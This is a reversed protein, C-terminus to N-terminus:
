VIYLATRLLQINNNNHIHVQAYLTQNTAFPFFNLGIIILTWFLSRMMTKKKQFFSFRLIHWTLTPLRVFSCFLFSNKHIFLLNNASFHLLLILHLAQNSTSGLSSDFSWIAETLKSKRCTSFDRLIYRCRKHYMWNLQVSHM